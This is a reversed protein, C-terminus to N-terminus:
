LLNLLALLASALGPSGIDGLAAFGPGHTEGTFGPTQAIGAAGPPTSTQGPAPAPAGPVHVDGPAPPGQTAGPDALASASFVAALVVAFCLRRFDKM